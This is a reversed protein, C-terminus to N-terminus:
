ALGFAQRDQHREALAQKCPAHRIHYGRAPSARAGAIRRASHNPGIVYPQHCITQVEGNELVLPHTVLMRRRILMCVSTLATTSALGILELALGCVPIRDPLRSPRPVYRSSIM